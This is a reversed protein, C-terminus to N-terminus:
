DSWGPAIRLRVGLAAEPDIDLGGDVEHVAVKHASFRRRTAALDPAHLVIRFPGPGIRDLEDAARGSGRPTLLRLEFGDILYTRAVADDGRLPQEGVPRGLGLGTGYIRTADHLDPVLVDVGRVGAIGNLHKGPSDWALREEDPTTWEILFPWPKRWPSGGPVLLRWALTRGDPRQRDMAFPGQVPLSVQELGAAESELESGALVFGALGSEEEVFALFDEGFPGRSRAQEADEVALLELYDLGFRIIANHTGLSQHRGGASVDFGLRRYATIGADLDAVAIVAHDFRQIM